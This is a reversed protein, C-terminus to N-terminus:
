WSHTMGERDCASLCSPVVDGSTPKCPACTYKIKKRHEETVAGVVDGYDDEIMELVGVSCADVCLGKCGICKDTDIIIFYEGSGDKYGYHAIM